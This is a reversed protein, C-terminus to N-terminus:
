QGKWSQAWSPNGNKGPDGPDGTVGAIQSLTDPDLIFWKIISRIIHDVPTQLLHIENFDM